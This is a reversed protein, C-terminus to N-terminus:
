SNYWCGSITLLLLYMNPFKVKAKCRWRSNTPGHRDSSFFLPWGSAHYEVWQQALLLTSWRETPRHLSCKWTPNYDINRYPHCQILKFLFPLHQYKYTPTPQAQCILKSRQTVQKRRPTTIILDPWVPLNNLNTSLVHSITITQM